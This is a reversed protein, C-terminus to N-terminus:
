RTHQPLVKLHRQMNIEPHRHYIQSRPDFHQTRGDPNAVILRDRKFSHINQYAFAQPEDFSTHQRAQGALCALRIFALAMACVIWSNADATGALIIAVPPGNIIFIQSGNFIVFTELQRPLYGKFIVHNASFKADFL